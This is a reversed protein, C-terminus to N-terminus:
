GPHRGAGNIALYPAHLDADDAGARDTAEDARPEGHVGLGLHAREGATLRQLGQVRLAPPELLTLGQQIGRRSSRRLRALKPRLIEHHDRYFRRGHRRDGALDAWQELGVRDHQRRHVSHRPPEGLAQLRHALLRQVTDIGAAGDGSGNREAMDDAADHMETGRRGLRAQDDMAVAVAQDDALGVPRHRRAQLLHVVQQGPRPELHGRRGGDTM